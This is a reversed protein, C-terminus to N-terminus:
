HEYWVRVFQHWSAWGSMTSLDADRTGEQDKGSIDPAHINPLVVTEITVVKVSNQKIWENAAEVAADLSEFEAERLLGGATKMKPVFDQHAIM